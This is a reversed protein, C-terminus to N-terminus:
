CMRFIKRNINRTWVYCFTTIMAYETNVASMETQDSYPRQHYGSRGLVPQRVPKTATRRRNSNRYLIFEKAEIVFLLLGRCMCPLETALGMPSATTGDIEGVTTILLFKKDTNGSPVSQSATNLIAKWTTHLSTM